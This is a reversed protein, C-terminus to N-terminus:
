APFQSFMVELEDLNLDKLPLSNFKDLEERLQISYVQARELREPTYKSQALKKEIRRLVTQKKQINQNIKHILTSRKAEVITNTEKETADREAVAMWSLGMTTFTIREPSFGESELYEKAEKFSTEVQSLSLQEGVPINVKKTKTIIETRM